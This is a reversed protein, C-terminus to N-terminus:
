KLHHNIYWEAQLFTDALDDKKKHKNFFDFWITQNNNELYKKTIEISLNKRNKYNNDNNDNTQNQYDKLKNSASVFKIITNKNKCIFYQALMGQITKMRNAIPSIQNEILIINPYNNSLISDNNLLNDFYDALKHGIEILDMENTKQNDINELYNENIKKIIFDRLQLNNIDKKKLTKINIDKNTYSKLENLLDLHEIYKKITSISINENQIESLKIQLNSPPLKYHLKNEKILKKAHKICYYNTQNKCYSPKTQCNDFLCKFNSNSLNAINWDLITINDKTQTEIQTQKNYSILCYALNKIGVDFSLINM